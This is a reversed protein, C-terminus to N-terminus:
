VLSLISKRADFYSFAFMGQIKNLVTKIPFKALLSFLTATDSHSYIDTENLYRKRLEKHNYIEGNFSLISNANFFPQDAKFTRDVISLRTHGMTVNGDSRVGIADGRRHEILHLMTRVRNERKKLGIEGKKDILGVVGCM